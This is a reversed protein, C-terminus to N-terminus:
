PITLRGDFEEDRLSIFSQGTHGLDFVEAALSEVRTHRFEVTKLMM